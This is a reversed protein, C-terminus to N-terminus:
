HSHGEHSHDDGHGHGHAGGPMEEATPEPFKEFDKRNWPLKVSFEKTLEVTDGEKDQAYIKRGAKFFTWKRKDPNKEDGLSLSVAPTGSLSQGRPIYRLIRSNMLTDLLNEMQAPKFQYEKEETGWGGNKKLLKLPADKKGTWSFVAQDAQFREVSSLLKSLRFDKVDKEFRNGSSLDIEFVPDLNSVTVYHYPPTGPEMYLELQFTEAGKKMEVMVIKQVKSLLKKAAADQKNDFRFDRANTNTVVSLFNDVNEVDGPVATLKEPKTFDLAWKNENKKGSVSTKKGTYSFSDIESTAISFLKKNRWHTLDKGTAEKFYNPILYITNTEPKLEKGKATVAFFSDGTVYTTGFSVAYFEGNANKMQVYGTSKAFNEVATNLQYEKLLAAKKESTEEKLDVTSKPEAHTLTSLLANVNTTDAMAKLPEVIQWKSQDGAKCLKAELDLCQIVIKKGNQLLTIEAISQDKIPFIKKDLEASEEKEPKHKNEFWFAFLGLACLLIALILPKAWAKSTM